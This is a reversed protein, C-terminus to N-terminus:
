HIIKNTDKGPDALLRRVVKEMHMNRSGKILVLDDMNLFDHLWKGVDSSKEFHHVDVDGTDLAAAGAHRMNPGVTVFVEAIEAAREGIHRHTGITEAGLDLMDGLIAIRRKAPLDKLLNLAALTSEPSGSYSDDLIKARNYGKLLRMRGPPPQISQLREVASAISVKMTHAVALAALIHPIHHAAVINPLHLEYIKGAVSVECAFGYTGLRQFRVLKITATDSEGYSVVSAEIQNQMSIVLPDDANLIVVGSKVALSKMEHAVYEKNTFLRLHTSQVNTIVGFNFPIHRVFYDIDGPRDAGLELVVVDPEVAVLEKLKSSTLLRVWNSRIISRNIGLVSLAVGVRTNYSFPTSRVKYSGELVIAIADKTITKGTSGAVGIVIPKYKKLYEKARQWLVLKGLQKM